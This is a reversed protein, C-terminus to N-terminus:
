SKGFYRPATTNLAPDVFAALRAIRYIKHGNVVRPALLERGSVRPDGAWRRLTKRDVGLWKAADTDGHLCGADTTM